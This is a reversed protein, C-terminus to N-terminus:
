ITSRVTGLTRTLELTFSQIDNSQPSQIKSESTSHFSRTPLLQLPHVSSGLPPNMDRGAKGRQDLSGLIGVTEQMRSQSPSLRQFLVLYVGDGKTKLKQHKTEAMAFHQISSPGTTGWIHQTPISLLCCLIVVVSKANEQLVFDSLSRTSQRSYYWFLGRFDLFCVVTPSAEQGTQMREEMILKHAEWINYSLLILHKIKGSQKNM